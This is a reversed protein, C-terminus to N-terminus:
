NEKDIVVHLKDASRYWGWENAVQLIIKVLCLLSIGGAIAFFMEILNYYNM